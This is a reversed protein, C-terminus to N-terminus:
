DLNEFNYSIEYEWNERVQIEKNKNNDQYLVMREPQVGKLYNGTDWEGNSNEDITFRIKYRGPPVFSFRFTKDESVTERNVVTGKDKTLEVIVNSKVGTLSLSITGFKEPDAGKFGYTVTDNSIKDLNVFAEPLLTFGYNKNAEWPYSLYFTVPSLTDAKFVFSKVSISDTQNYLEFRSTDISVLPLDVTLKLQQSPQVSAGSKPSFSIPLSQKKEVVEADGKGKRRATSPTKDFFFARLTDISEVFNLLSDTKMYHATIILSDNKSIDDNTIWFDLSDGKLNTSAIYWQEASDLSFNLPNLKVEGEPKKSFAMSIKRRHNRSFDTRAVIRNEEQFLRLVFTSDRLRETNSPGFLTSSDIPNSIFGVSETLQDFKYNSNEDRLAFIKYSKQKLNSLVFRGSKDTKTVYRPRKLIPVSDEFSEYLMVFAGEIPDNTFADVVKGTFKLSDIVSGTSFAFEFNELKNGENNDIIADSFYLTYTTEKELPEFFEIELSKGKVKFEPLREQPPSLVFKENVKDLRYFENFTILINEEKVNTANMQPISRILIPPITDQPGGTPPEIVACKPFLISILILIPIFYALRKLQLRNKIQLLNVFRQSVM